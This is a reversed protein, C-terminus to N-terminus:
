PAGAEARKARQYEISHKRKRDLYQPDTQARKRHYRAWYDRRDMPNICDCVYGYSTGVIDAIEQRTCQFTKYLERIREAKSM